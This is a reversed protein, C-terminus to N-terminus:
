DRHIRATVSMGPRPEFGGTDLFAVRVAVWEDTRDPSTPNDELNPYVTFRSATGMQIETVMGPLERGPLADVAIGVPAGVRVDAIEEEPVRATVYLGAGDFTTALRRGATVWEGDTVRSRAVQGDGSARVVKQPGDSGGVRIRGLPQRDRVLDGDQVDWRELVGSVPAVVDTAKGDITANDTTVYQSSVLLYHTAFGTIELLALVAVLAVGFKTSRRIPRKAPPATPPAARAETVVDVPVDIDDLRTQEITPM